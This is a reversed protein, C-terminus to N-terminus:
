GNLGRVPDDPRTVVSLSERPIIYTREVFIGPTLYKDFCLRYREVETRMGKWKGCPRYRSPDRVFEKLM